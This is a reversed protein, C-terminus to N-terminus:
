HIRLELPELAWVADAEAIEAWTLATSLQRPLLMQPLKPRPPRMPTVIAKAAEQSTERAAAIAEALGGLQDVLGRELAQRGTWVRGEAAAEVTEKSIRRGRAVVDVFHRYHDTILDRMARRETGTWGTSPSAFTSNAGRRVSQQHLGLRELLHQASVKGAVVGISGTLSAPQAVVQHAAAAVMYGGSAAVNAMYAVVPKRRGLREVERRIQDSAVVTGGRSEIYLVVAAVSRDRRLERLQKVVDKAGVVGRLARNKGEVLMGRLEVVALQKRGLPISGMLHRGRAYTNWRRIKAKDKGKPALKRALQDPYCIGDILGLERAREPSFPGSGLIEKATLPGLKRTEGVADVLLGEIEDLIEGLMEANEPTMSRRVLPEGATKYRGAAEVQARLGFKELAPALYTSELALGTLALTGAPALWIEDAAAAVYYERSGGGEPLYAVVRKGSRRVRALLTHMTQLTAWGAELKRLDVLITSLDADDM